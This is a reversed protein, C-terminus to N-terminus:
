TQNDMQQRVHSMAAEMNDFLPINLGGYQRQQINESFTKVWQDSGVLMGSFRPDAASGPQKKSSAKALIMVLDSFTTDVDRVDTIRYLHGGIEDVLRASQEFMEQILELTVHGTLTAILIPKGPIREVKVAM